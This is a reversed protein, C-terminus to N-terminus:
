PATISGGWILSRDCGQPSARSRLRQVLLDANTTASIETRDRAVRAFACIPQGAGCHNVQLVIM